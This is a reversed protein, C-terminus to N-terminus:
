FSTETSEITARDHNQSDGPREIDPKRFWCVAIGLAVCFVIITLAEVVCNSVRMYFFWEVTRSGAPFVSRYILPWALIFLSMSAGGVFAGRCNCRKETIWIFLFFLSAFFLFNSGFTRLAVVTLDLNGRFPLLESGALHTGGSILFIMWIALIREFRQKGPNDPLMADVLILIVPPPLMLIVRIYQVISRWAPSSSPVQAAIIFPLFFGAAVFGFIVFHRLSNLRSRFRPKVEMSSPLTM